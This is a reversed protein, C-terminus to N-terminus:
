HVNRRFVLCLYAHTTDGWLPVILLAQLRDISVVRAVYVVVDRMEYIRCHPRSPGVLWVSKRYSYDGLSKSTWVSWMGHLFVLYGKTHFCDLTPYGDRWQHLNGLIKLWNLRGSDRFLTEFRLSSRVIAAFLLCLYSSLIHVYSFSTAM